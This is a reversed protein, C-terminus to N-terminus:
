KARVIKKIAALTPKWRYIEMHLGFEESVAIKEKGLLEKQMQPTAYFSGKISIRGENNIVRWWPLTDDNSFRLIMGVQRAARPSGAYSAVQGYSAVHGKPISRIILIVREKFTSQSM